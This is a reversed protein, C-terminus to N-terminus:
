NRTNSGSNLTLNGIITGDGTKDLKTSLDTTTAYSGSAQKGNLQTQVDGMLTTLYGLQTPTIGNLNGTMTGGELALAPTSLKSDIVEASYTNGNLKIGSPAFELVGTMTGGSTDLKTSLQATTAYNGTAQKGNLATQLSTIDSALAYNGSAQKGNLATQLSTIDSALAYNGKTQKNTDLEDLQTQIKHKTGSLYAIESPKAGLFTYQNNAATVNSTLELNGNSLVNLPKKTTIISTTEPYSSTQMM